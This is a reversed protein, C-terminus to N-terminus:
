LLTFFIEPCFIRQVTCNLACFRLFWVSELVSDQPGFLGLWVISHVLCNLACLALSCMNL